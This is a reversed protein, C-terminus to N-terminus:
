SVGSRYRDVVSTFDATVTRSGPIGLLTLDSLRVTCSVRVHVKGGPRLDMDRVRIQPGGHCGMNLQNLTSAATTMAAVQATSASQSQTAARAANRAATTLKSEVVGVRGAAVVFFLLMAMVPTLVALGIMSNGQERSGGQELRNGLRKHWWPYTKM